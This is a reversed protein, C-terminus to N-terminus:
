PSLKKLGYKVTNTANITGVSLVSDIRLYGVGNVTLNTIHPFSTITLIYANTNYVSGDVSSGIRVVINTSGTNWSLAVEKQNGCYIVAAVDNSTAAAAVTPVSLTVPRYDPAQANAVMAFLAVLGLIAFLKKM